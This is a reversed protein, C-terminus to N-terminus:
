GGRFVLFVNRGQFYAFQHGLLLPGKEDMPSPALRSKTFRRQLKSTVLFRGFISGKFFFLCCFLDLRSAPPSATAIAVRCLVPGRRIQALDTSSFKWGFPMRPTQIQFALTPELCSKKGDPRFIDTKLQFFLPVRLDYDRYFM